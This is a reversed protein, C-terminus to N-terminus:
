KNPKNHIPQDKLNPRSHLFGEGSVVSVSIFEYFPYGWSAPTAETLLHLLMDSHTIPYYSNLGAM